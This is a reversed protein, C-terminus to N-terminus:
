ANSKRRAVATLGLLGSGFLWAAAPVPVVSPRVLFSGYLAAKDNEAIGYYDPDTGYHTTIYDQTPSWWNDYDDGLMALHHCNSICGLTPALPYPPAEDAIIGYTFGILATPQTVGQEQLRTDGLLRIVNGVIGNNEASLGCFSTGNVCQMAVAGQGFLLNELQSGTAYSWGALAGGAALQSSVESYSQNTTQTLKYWDLGSVTDTVYTGNDILAANVSIAHMGSLLSLSIAVQKIAKM